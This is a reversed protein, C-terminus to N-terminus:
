SNKNKDLLWQLDDNATDNIRKNRRNKTATVKNLTTKVSENRENEKGKNFIYFAAAIISGLTAIIIKINSIM